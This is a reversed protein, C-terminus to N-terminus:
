ESQISITARCILGNRKTLPIMALLSLRFMVNGWTSGFTFAEGRLRGGLRTDPCSLPRKRALKSSRAVTFQGIIQGHAM